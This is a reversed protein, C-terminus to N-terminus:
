QATDLKDPFTNFLYEPIEPHEHKTAHSFRVASEELCVQMEGRSPCQKECTFQLSDTGGGGASSELPISIFTIICSSPSYINKTFTQFFCIFILHTLSRPNQTQKLHFEGWFYFFLTESVAANPKSFRYAIVLCVLYQYALSEPSCALWLM